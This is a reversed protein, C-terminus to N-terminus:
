KEELPIISDICEKFYGAVGLAQKFLELVDYIDAENHFKITIQNHEKGFHVKIMKNELDENLM